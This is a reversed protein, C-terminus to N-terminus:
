SSIEYEYDNENSFRCYLERNNRLEVLSDKAIVPSILCYCLLVCSLKGDYVAFSFLYNECNFVLHWLTCKLAVWYVKPQINYRKRNNIIQSESSHIRHLSDIRQWLFIISSSKWQHFRLFGNDNSGRVTKKTKQIVWSIISYFWLSLAFILQSDYFILPFADKSQNCNNGTQWLAKGNGFTNAGGWGECTPIRLFTENARFIVSVIKRLSFLERKLGRQAKTLM